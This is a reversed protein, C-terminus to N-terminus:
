EGSLSTKLDDTLMVEINGIYRKGRDVNQDMNNENIFFILDYTHENSTVTINKFDGANDYGFISNMARPSESYNRGDGSGTYCDDISIENNNSCSDLSAYENNNYLTLWTNNTVDKVAYALYNFENSETNLIAYIKSNFGSFISFRYISCVQRNNDDFCINQSNSIDGRDIHSQYVNKVVDLSAPILEDAQASVQQGDEYRINIIATRARVKNEGSGTKYSFYALSSGVISIILTATIILGYFIDKKKKSKSMKDVSVIM